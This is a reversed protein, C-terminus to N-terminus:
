RAFSSSLWLFHANRRTEPLFQQSRDTREPSKGNREATLRVTGVIQDLLGQDLGPRVDVAELLAGIELSPEEGYQAIMVIRFDALAAALHFIGVAMIRAPKGCMRGLLAM